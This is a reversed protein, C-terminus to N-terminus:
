AALNLCRQALQQIKEPDHHDGVVARIEEGLLERQWARRKDAHSPRRKPDDWPSASRHGVLEDAKRGWAWVETMTFSWVCLHFSGVNSAVGRVQQQGAGVVQKLDRFCTELTFRDAVLGLIDAVTATRDTCFFAVWGTPEAVRVVRIAGGAPRWTAEFTKYRKEVAKGYVTFTFTTWGGKQGARKALSLREPGYVRPRGRRNPDRAPPVSCRAADKRLRSVVTVGLAGLAKLVPAKAYAGDAVVWVPKGWSKLWVHAWRVLDVAMALKTAFAPRNNANITPLDKKRIYLRALLPLAIVGWLPHTVLVGLVVWVHGYLFPSGTPGPTPNHHVGAGQVQPRYRETPTDDLALVVRPAATVVPKLVEILLRAAVRETRRGVAAATAYCRRYQASLGAGRIWRTM